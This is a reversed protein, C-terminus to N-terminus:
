DSSGQPREGLGEPSLSVLKSVSVPIGPLYRLFKWINQLGAGCWEAICGRGERWWVVGRMGGDLVGGAM